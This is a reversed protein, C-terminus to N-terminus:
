KLLNFAVNDAEDGSLEVHQERLVYKVDQRNAETNPPVPGFEKTLADAIGSFCRECFGGWLKEEPIRRYCKHCLRILPM